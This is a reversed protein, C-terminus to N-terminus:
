DPQQTNMIPAFSNSKTCIPLQKITTKKSVPLPPKYSQLVLYILHIKYKAPIHVPPFYQPQPLQPLNQISKNSCKVKEDQYQTPTILIYVTARNETHLLLPIYLTYIIYLNTSKMTCLNFYQYQILCVKTSLDPRGKPVHCYKPPLFTYASTLQM